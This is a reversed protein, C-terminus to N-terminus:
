ATSGVPPIFYNLRTAFAVKGFRGCRKDFFIKLRNFAGVFYHNVPQRSSFVQHNVKLIWVPISKSHEADRFVSFFLKELAKRKGTKV